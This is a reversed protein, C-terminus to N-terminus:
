KWRKLWGIKEWLLLETSYPLNKPLPNLCFVKIRKGVVLNLGIAFAMEAFVSPGIYNKAGSRDLNMVFLIDSEAIKKYHLRHIKVYDGKLRKPIKIVAYNNKELKKQWQEAERIFVGSACIVVKKIKNGM